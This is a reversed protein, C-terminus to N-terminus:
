AMVLEFQIPFHAVGVILKRTSGYTSDTITFNIGHRNDDVLQNFQFSNILLWLKVRVLNM